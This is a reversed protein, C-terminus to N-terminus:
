RRPESSPAVGAVASPSARLAEVDRSSSEVEVLTTLDEIM